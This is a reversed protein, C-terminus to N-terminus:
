VFFFAWVGEGFLNVGLCKGVPALGILSFLKNPNLALLLKGVGEELIYYRPFFFIVFPFILIGWVSLV